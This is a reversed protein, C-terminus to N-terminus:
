PARGLKEYLTLLRQMLTPDVEVPVPATALEPGALHTRAPSAGTAASREDVPPEYEVVLDIRPRPSRSELEEEGGPRLPSGRWPEGATHGVLWGAVGALPILTVLLATASRM